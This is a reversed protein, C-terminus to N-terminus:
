GGIRGILYGLLFIFIVPILWLWWFSVEKKKDMFDYISLINRSGGWNTYKPKGRLTEANLKSM